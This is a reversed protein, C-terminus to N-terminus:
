KWRQRCLQYLKQGVKLPIETASAQPTWMVQPWRRKLEELTVLPQESYAEFHLWAHLPEGDGWQAYDFEGTTRGAAVVGKDEDPVGNGLRVLFAFSGAPIKSEYRRRGCSWLVGPPEKKARWRRILKVWDGDDLNPHDVPNWTFLFAKTAHLPARDADAQDAGQGAPGVQRRGQPQGGGTGLFVPRVPERKALEKLDAEDLVEAEQRLFEVYSRVEAVEHGELVVGAEELRSSSQESLNMSGVVAHRDFVLVKAHLGPLSRVEVGAKLLRLAGKASSSGGKVQDESLDAIVVSGKPWPLLKHVSKGVFAVAAVVKQSRRALEHIESWLKEGHLFRVM